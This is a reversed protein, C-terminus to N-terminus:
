MGKDVQQYPRFFQENPHFPLPKAIGEVQQFQNNAHDLSVHRTRSLTGRQSPILCNEMAHGFAFDCSDPSRLSADKPEAEAFPM